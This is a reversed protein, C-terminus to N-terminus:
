DILFKISKNFLKDFLKQDISSVLFYIKNSKNYFTWKKFEEFSHYKEIWLDNGFWIIFEVILLKLQNQKDM